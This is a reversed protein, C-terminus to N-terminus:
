PGKETAGHWVRIERNAVEEDGYAPRRLHRRFVELARETALVLRLAMATPPAAAALAALPVVAAGAPPDAAATAAM